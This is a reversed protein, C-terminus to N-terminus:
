QVDTIEETGGFMLSSKEILIQLRKSLLLLKQYNEYSFM